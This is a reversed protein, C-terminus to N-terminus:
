GRLLLFLGFVLLVTDIVTLFARPSLRDVISKGLRSGLVMLPGLLLGIVIARGSLVGGSGYAGLKAVHMIATGTAETGIFVGRVLGFTVYFPALFPGGSGVLGSVLAFAAGILTFRSAPFSGIPRRRLRRWLVSALLFAGLLQRLVGEGTRAFLLGGVLALPVAGLAFWRVVDLRIERRNLYVRSLNGILQAVTYAPVGDRVGLTAVLLPLLIIAGGTGAVAAVTSAILAAAALLSVEVSIPLGM